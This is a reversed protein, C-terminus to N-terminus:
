FASFATQCSSMNAHIYCQGSRFRFISSTIELALSTVCFDTSVIGFIEQKSQFHSIDVKKNSGRQQVNLTVPQLKGKRIVPAQGPHTCQYAPTLKQLVRSFLDDWRLSEVYESKALVLDSLVVDPQDRGLAALAEAGDEAVMVRYGGARLRMEMVTLINLDDDILLVVPESM